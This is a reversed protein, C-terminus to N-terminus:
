GRLAKVAGLLLFWVPQHILYLIITHRGIAAMGGSHSRNLLGCPLKLLWRGAYCGAFFLGGWPLLPFYDASTMTRHPFGLPFLLDRDWLADPIPTAVGIIGYPLRFSLFFVLVGMAFGLMDPLSSCPRVLLPHLILCVALLHLIGFRIPSGVLTSIATIVAAFLACWLGRRLNSRSLHTCVGSLLVFLAPVVSQLLRYEPHLLWLRGYSQPFFMAIDYLLHYLLVILILVGRLEDLLPIRKM